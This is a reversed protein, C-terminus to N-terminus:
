KILSAWGWRGSKAFKFDYGRKILDQASRYHKVHDVDDMVLVKNALFHKPMRIVRKYEAFGVGGASDLFILQRKKNRILDPLLNETETNQKLEHIYFAKPRDVGEYKLGHDSDYIDDNKIFEVMESFPLSFGYLATVNSFEKLNEKAIDYIYKNCELTVVPLGTKAFVRTSGIGKYTGTEIVEEIDFQNIIQNIADEFEQDSTMEIHTIQEEM